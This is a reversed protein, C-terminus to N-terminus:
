QQPRELDRFKRNLEFERETVFGEVRALRPELRALADRVAIVGPHTPQSPGGRLSNGVAALGGRRRAMRWVLFLVFLVFMGALVHKFGSDSHKRHHGGVTQIDGNDDSLSVMNAIKGVGFRELGSASTSISSGGGTHRQVPGTVEAVRIDGGGTASLDATAATAAVVLDGSSSIRARLAGISGRGIATDGSAQLALDAAPSNIAGIALDGAGSQRVHLVGNLEPIKVDGNGTINIDAPGSAAQVSADGSGSVNLVLEAVRGVHLDGSGLVNAVLQANLDGITVNGAGRMSLIVPFNAPVAITLHDLDENCSTDDIVIADGGGHNELCSANDGSVRVDGQLSSDTEITADNNGAVTMVLRSGHLTFSDAMAPSAAVAATIGAALLARNLIRGM